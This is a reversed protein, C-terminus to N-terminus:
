ECLVRTHLFLVREWLTNQKAVTWLSIFKQEMATSLEEEEAEGEAGAMLMKACVVPTFPTAEPLSYAAAM